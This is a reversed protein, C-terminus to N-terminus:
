VFHLEFNIQHSRREMAAAVSQVIEIYNPSLKAMSLYFRIIRGQRNWYFFMEFWFVRVDDKSLYELKPKDFEFSCDIYVKDFKVTRSVMALTMFILGVDTESHFRGSLKVTRIGTVNRLVRLCFRTVIGRDGATVYNMEDLALHVIRCDTLVIGGFFMPMLNSELFVANHPTVRFAINGRFRLFRYYREVEAVDALRGSIVCSRYYQVLVEDPLSQLFTRVIDNYGNKGLRHLM